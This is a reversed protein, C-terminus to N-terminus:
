PTGLFNPNKLKFKQIEGDIIEEMNKLTQEQFEAFATLANIKDLNANKNDNESSVDKRQVGHMASHAKRELLENKIAQLTQQTHVMYDRGEDSLSLDNSDKWEHLMMEGFNYAAKLSKSNEKQWRRGISTKTDYVGWNLTIAELNNLWRKLEIGWQMLKLINYKSQLIVRNSRLVNRKSRMVSISKELSKVTDDFGNEVGNKMIEKKSNQLEALKADLAREIPEIKYFVNDMRRQILREKEQLSTISNLNLGIIKSYLIEILNYEASIITVVIVIVVLQVAIAIFFFLLGGWVLSLYIIVIFPLIGLFILFLSKMFRM